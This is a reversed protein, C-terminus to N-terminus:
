KKKNLRLYEVKIPKYDKSELRFNNENTQFTRYMFFLCRITLIILICLTYNFIVSWLTINCACVCLHIPKSIINLIALLVSTNLIKLLQFKIYRFLSDFILFTNIKAM